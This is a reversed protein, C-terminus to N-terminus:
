RAGDLVAPRPLRRVDDNDSAHLHEAAAYRAVDHRQGGTWGAIVDAPVDEGVVLLIDRLLGPAVDAVSAALDDPDDAPEQPAAGPTRLISAAIGRVAEACGSEIDSKRSPATARASVDLGGALSALRGLVAAVQERLRANAAILGDRERSIATAVNPALEPRAAPVAEPADEPGAGGDKGRTRELWETGTETGNWEPGDYGDAMESIIGAAAQVDRRHLDISAAYLSRAQGSVVHGLQRGGEALRANEARADDYLAKLHSTAGAAIVRAADRWAERDDGLDPPPTLGNRQWHAIQGARAMADLASDSRRPGTGAAPAAACRSCLDGEMTGPVWACGGPCAQEDTCGCRICRPVDGPDFVNGPATTEEAGGDGALLSRIETACRDYIAAKGSLYPGDVPSPTAGAHRAHGRAERDYETVMDNLRRRLEADPLAGAAKAAAMAAEEYGARDEDLLAGWPVSASPWWAQHM